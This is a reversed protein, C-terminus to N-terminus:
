SGATSFKGRVEEFNKTFEEQTQLKHVNCRSIFDSCYYKLLMHQSDLKPMSKLNRVSDFYSSAILDDIAIRDQLCVIKKILEKVTQPMIHENLDELVLFKCELSLKFILYDSAGRFPLLGTYLQYLIVGLSWIDTGKSSEKNHICEPAMYQSTGVFNIHQTRKYHDDVFTKRM